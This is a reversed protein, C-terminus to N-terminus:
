HPAHGVDLWRSEFLDTDFLCFGREMCTRSDSDREYPAEREPRLELNHSGSVQVEDVGNETKRIM